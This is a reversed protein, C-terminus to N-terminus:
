IAGGLSVAKEHGSPCKLKMNLKSQASTTIVARGGQVLSVKDGHKVVLYVMQHCVDCFVAAM